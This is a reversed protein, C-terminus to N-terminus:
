SRGLNRYAKMIINLDNYIRYDKAYLMNLKDVTNTDVSEKKIIDLPTLIGKRIKPLSFGSSNSAYGVWSKKGSIVDFINKLLYM